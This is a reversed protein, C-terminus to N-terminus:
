SSPAPGAGDVRARAAGVEALLRYLDTDSVPKTFHQHFGAARAREKDGPQGWGSVAAITPRLELNMGNIARAVDYGSMHPMGIDLLVLHPAFSPIARIASAGDYATEVRHGLQQLLVAFSDAADVNDDV